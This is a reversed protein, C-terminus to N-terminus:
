KHFLIDFIEPDFIEDLLSLIHREEIRRDEHVWLDPHSRTMDSSKRIRKNVAIFAFSSKSCILQNISEEFLM